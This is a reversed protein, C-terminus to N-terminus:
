MMHMTSWSHMAPDGCQHSLHSKTRSVSRGGPVESSMTELLGDWPAVQATGSSSVNYAADGPRPYGGATAVFGTRQGRVATEDPSALGTVLQQDQQRSRLWGNAYGMSTEKDTKDESYPSYGSSPRGFPESQYEQQQQQQQHNYEYSSVSTSRPSIRGYQLCASSQDISLGFRGGDSDVEPTRKKKVPRELQQVLAPICVGRDRQMHGLVSSAYVAASPTNWSTPVTHMDNSTAALVPPMPTMGTSGRSLHQPHWLLLEDYQGNRLLQMARKRKKADSVDLGMVPQGILVAFRLLNSVWFQQVAVRLCQTEVLAGDNTNNERQFQDTLEQRFVQELQSLERQRRAHDMPDFQLAKKGKAPQVVRFTRKGLANKQFKKSLRMTSCNLMKALVLRIPTGHALPLAQRDFERLVVDIFNEEQRTWKGSRPEPRAMMDISPSIAVQDLPAACVPCVHLPWVHVCRSHFTHRCDPAVLIPDPYRCVDCMEEM